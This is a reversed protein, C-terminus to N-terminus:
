RRQRETKVEGGTVRYIPYTAGPSLGAEILNWTVFGDDSEPELLSFALRALRQDAPVFLGGVEAALKAPEYRGTLRAEFRNQFPKSARTYNAIIFREVSMEANAAVRQVDVGHHRLREIATTYASSEVHTRPIYWGRPLTATRTAEFIGYDKMTVPIATDTM